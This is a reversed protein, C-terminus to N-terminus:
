SKGPNSDLPDFDFDSAPKDMLESSFDTELDEDPDHPQVYIRNFRVAVVKVGEGPDVSFGECVADHSQGNIRVIGSPLMATLAVGRQGVLEKLALTEAENPLVDKGEPARLLIRRGIPTSPWIKVLLMLLGPIAMVTALLVVAGAQPSDIFAMVIGSIVLVTAMVALVGASPVFMEVVIVFVGLVLLIM